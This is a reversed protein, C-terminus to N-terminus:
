KTQAASGGLSVSGPKEVKFDSKSKNKDRDMMQVLVDIDSEIDLNENKYLEDLQTAFGDVISDMTNEISLKAGSINEGDINTADLNAYYDLLKLTTPLYYTMFRDIKGRKKPNKEVEAFIKRTIDEIQDIKSTMIEGPIRDNVDRIQILIQEYANASQRAAESRAAEAAKSMAAKKAQALEEDAQSSRFLYGLEHNVYATNGFYGKEAMKSLDKEVRKKSYGVKAALSDIEVADNMGIITLYKAYRKVAANMTIGSAATAAGGALMSLHWLAEFAGAGASMGALSALSLFAVMAGIIILIISTKKEKPATFLESIKQRADARAKEREARQRMEERRREEEQRSLSPAQTFTEKKGSMAQCYLKYAMLPLAVPWIGLSFLVVIAVWSINAGNNNNNNQNYNYM